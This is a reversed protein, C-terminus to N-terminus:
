RVADWKILVGEFHPLDGHEERWFARMDAWDQFGDNEAFADMVAAGHILAHPQQIQQLHFDIHIPNVSICTARAILRCHKTRQAYYLQLEEGARAHRKRNARITQKKRGDAIKQCFREKFSYAVM